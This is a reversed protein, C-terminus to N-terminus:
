DDRQWIIYALLLAAGVPFWYTLIFALADLDTRQVILILLGVQVILILCLAIRQRVSSAM